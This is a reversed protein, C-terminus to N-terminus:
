DTLKAPKIGVTDRLREAVRFSEELEVVPKLRNELFGAPFEPAQQSVDKAKWAPVTCLKVKM